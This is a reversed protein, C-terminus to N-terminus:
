GRGATAGDLDRYVARRYSAPDIAATFSALPEEGSDETAAPTPASAGGFVTLVLVGGDDALATTRRVLGRRHVYSWRQLATDRRAFEHADIGDVLTFQEVEVYGM